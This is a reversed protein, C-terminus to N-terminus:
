KISQNHHTSNLIICIPSNAPIAIPDVISSFTIIPPYNVFGFGLLISFTTTAITLSSLTQYKVPWHCSCWHVRHSAKSRSKHVWFVSSYPYENQCWNKSSHSSCPDVIDNPVCILWQTLDGLTGRKEVSTISAGFLKVLHLHQLRKMVELEAMFWYSKEHLKDKNFYYELILVFSKCLGSLCVVSKQKM